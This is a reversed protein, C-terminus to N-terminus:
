VFKKFLKIFEESEKQIEKISPMKNCGNNGDNCEPDYLLLLYSELFSALAGFLKERRTSETKKFFIDNNFQFYHFSFKNIEKKIKHISNTKFKNWHKNAFKLRSFSTDYGTSCERGVLDDQTHSDM